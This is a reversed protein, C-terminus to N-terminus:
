KGVGHLKEIAARMEDATVENYDQLLVDADAWGGIRQVVSVIDNSTGTRLLRIAGTKRTSWHFTNGGVKKGWPVGARKATRRCLNVYAHTRQADAEAPDDAEATRRHPFLYASANAPLAALATQVRPSLPVELEEGNKPDAVRILGGAVDTKKLDIVDGLRMLTDVALMFVLADAPNHFAALIKAEEDAHM